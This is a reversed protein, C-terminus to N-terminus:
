ISEGPRMKKTVNSTIGIGVPYQKPPKMGKPVRRLDLRPRGSGQSKCTACAVVQEGLTVKRTRFNTSINNEEMFGFGLILPQNMKGQLVYFSTTVISGQIKMDLTITQHVNTQGEGLKCTMPQALTTCKGDLGQKSLFSAVLINDSAGSDLLAWMRKDEIYVPMQIAKIRRAHPMASTGVMSATKCSTNTEKKGEVEKQTIELDKLEDLATKVDSMWQQTQLQTEAVKASLQQITLSDCSTTDAALVNCM